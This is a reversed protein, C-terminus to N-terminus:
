KFDNYNFSKYLLIDNISDKVGELLFVSTTGPHKIKSM